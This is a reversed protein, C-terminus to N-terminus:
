VNWIQIIEKAKQTIEIWNSDSLIVNYGGKKNEAEYGVKKYRIIMENLECFMGYIENEGKTSKYYQIFREFDFDDYLTAITESFSSIFEPHKGAWTLKQFDIDSLDKIERYLNDQWLAPNENEGLKM